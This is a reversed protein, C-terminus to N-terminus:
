ALKGLDGLLTYLVDAVEAVAATNADYSRDETGNFVTFQSGSKQHYRGSIQAIEAELAALKEELANVRNFLDGESGRM